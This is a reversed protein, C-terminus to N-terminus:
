QDSKESKLLTKNAYELIIEDFNCYKLIEPSILNPKSAKGNILYQKIRTYEHM